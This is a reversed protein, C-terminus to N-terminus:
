LRAQALNAVTRGHVGGLGGRKDGRFQQHESIAAADKRHRVAAVVRFDEPDLRAQARNQREIAEMERVRQRARQPSPSERHCAILRERLDDFGAGGGARDAVISIFSAAPDAMADLGAVLVEVMEAEGMGDLTPLGTRVTRPPQNPPEVADPKVAHEAAFAHEAALAVRGLDGNGPQHRRQSLGPHRQQVTLEQRGM